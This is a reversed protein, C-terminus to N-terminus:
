DTTPTKPDNLKLECESKKAKSDNTGEPVFQHSYPVFQMRMFRHGQSMFIIKQM